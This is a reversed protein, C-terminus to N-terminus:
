QSHDPPYVEIGLPQPVCRWAFARGHEPERLREVEQAAARCTQEDVFVRQQVEITREPDIAEWSMLVLVFPVLIEVM